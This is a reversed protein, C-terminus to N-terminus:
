CRFDLWRNVRGKDVDMPSNRAGVSLLDLKGGQVGGALVKGGDWGRVCMCHKWWGEFGGWRERM